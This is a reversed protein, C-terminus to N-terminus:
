AVDPSGPMSVSYDGEDAVTYNQEVILQAANENTNQAFCQRM